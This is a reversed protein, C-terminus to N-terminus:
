TILRSRTDRSAAAPSTTSATARSERGAAASVVWPHAGAFAEPGSPTPATAIARRTRRAAAVAPRAFRHRRPSRTRATAFVAPMRPTAAVAASARRRPPLPFKLCPTRPACLVGCAIRRLRNGAALRGSDSNFFFPRSARFAMPRKKRWGRWGRNFIGPFERVAKPLLGRSMRPLCGRSCGGGARRKRSTRRRAATTADARFFRGLCM